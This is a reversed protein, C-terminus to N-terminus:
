FRSDSPGFRYAAGFVIGRPNLTHSQNTINNHFDPFFDYDYEVRTSWNGRIRYEVGGGLTWIHSTDHFHGTGNDPHSLSAFGAEGKVLPQFRRWGFTYILGGGGTFYKYNSADENGGWIM